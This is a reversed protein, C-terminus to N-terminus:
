VNQNLTGCHPCIPKSKKKKYITQTFLKKCNVCKIFKEKVMVRFNFPSGKLM